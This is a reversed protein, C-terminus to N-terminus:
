GGATSTPQISATSGIIRLRGEVEFWASPKGDDEDATPKPAYVSRLPVLCLIHSVAIEWEATSVCWVLPAAGHRNFHLRMQGTYELM